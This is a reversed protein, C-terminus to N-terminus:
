LSQLCLGADCIGYHLNQPFGINGVGFEMFRMGAHNGEALWNDFYSAESSAPGAESIGCAAFGLRMAEEKIRQESIM